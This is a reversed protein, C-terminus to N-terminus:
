IPSALPLPPLYKAQRVIECGRCNTDPIDDGSNRRRSSNAQRNKRSAGHVENGPYSRRRSLKARAVNWGPGPVEAGACIEPKVGKNCLRSAGPPTAPVRSPTRDSPSRRRRNRTRQRHIPAPRSGRRRSCPKRPQRPIEGAGRRPTSEPASFAYFEPMTRYGGSFGSFHLRSM